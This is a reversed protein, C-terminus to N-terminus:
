KKQDIYERIKPLYMNFYTNFLGIIFNHESAKGKIYEPIEDSEIIEKLRDITLLVIMPDLFVPRVIKIYVFNCIRKEIVISVAFFLKLSFYFPVWYLVKDLLLEVLIFSLYVIWYIFWRRNDLINIDENNKFKNMEISKISSYIPYIINLCIRTITSFFEFFMWFFIICSFFIVLNRKM